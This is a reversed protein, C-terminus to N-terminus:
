IPVASQPEEEVRQESQCAIPEVVSTSVIVPSVEARNPNGLHWKWHLALSVEDVETAGINMKCVSRCHPEPCFIDDLSASQNRPSVLRGKVLKNRHELLFTAGVELCKFRLSSRMGRCLLDYISEEGVVLNQDSYNAKSTFAQPRIDPM